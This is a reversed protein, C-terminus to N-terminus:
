GLDRLLVPRITDTWIEYGQPNMHLGDEVFLGRLEGSEDFMPSAVDIFTVDPDADAFAAMLRNARDM